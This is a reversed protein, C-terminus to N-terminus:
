FFFFFCIETELVDGFFSKFISDFGKRFCAKAPWKAQWWISPQLESAFGLSKCIKIKYISGALGGTEQFRMSEECEKGPTGTETTM